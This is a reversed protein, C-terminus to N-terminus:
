VFDEETLNLNNMAIKKAGSKKLRWLFMSIKTKNEYDDLLYRCTSVNNDKLNLIIKLNTRVWKDEFLYVETDLEPHTRLILAKRTWPGIGRIQDIPINREYQEIVDLILNAKDKGMIKTLNIRGLTKINEITFEGGNLAIYLDQRISRALDFSIRQSILLSILEHEFSKTEIDWFQRTEDIINIVNQM